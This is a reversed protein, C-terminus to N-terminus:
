AAANEAKELVVVQVFGDKVVREKQFGYQGFDRVIEDCYFFRGEIKLLRLVGNMCKRILWPFNPDAIYLRGGNKLVRAAEKRFAERNSFHHYAMCATVVDFTGSDFPLKGSDATQINMQPCKKKAEMVMPGCRDVGYGAIEAKLSIRKLVTGTGCGVDLVSDGDKVEVANVLDRYFRESLRGEVGEDYQSARNDFQFDKKDKM